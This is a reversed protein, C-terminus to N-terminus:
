DTVSLNFLVLDSMVPLNPSCPQGIKNTKAQLASQDVSNTKRLHAKSIVKVQSLGVYVMYVALTCTDTTLM